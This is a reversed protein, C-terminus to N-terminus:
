LYFKYVVEIHLPKEKQKVIFDLEGVTLTGNQIQTNEAIINISEFQNLEHNVFREVRKGLRLNKRINGEFSTTKLNPNEFQKLGFVIDSKWLLPTNLFGEYQLQIDKSNLDM